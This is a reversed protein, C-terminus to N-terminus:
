LYKLLEKEFSFCLVVGKKFTREDLFRMSFALYKGDTYYTVYGSQMKTFIRELVYEIERVLMDAFVDKKKEHKYRKDTTIADIRYEDPIINIYLIHQIRELKKIDELDIKSKNGLVTLQEGCKNKIYQFSYMSGINTILKFRQLIYGSSSLKEIKKLM